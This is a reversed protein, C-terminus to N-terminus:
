HFCVPTLPVEHDFLSKRGYMEIILIKDIDVVFGPSPNLIEPMPSRVFVVKLLSIKGEGVAFLYALKFATERRKEQYIAVSNVRGRWQEVVKIIPLFLITCDVALIPLRVAARYLGSLIRIAYMGGEERPSLEIKVM